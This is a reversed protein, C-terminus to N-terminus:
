RKAHLKIGGFAVTFTGGLVLAVIALTKIDEWHDSLFKYGMLIAIISVVAIGIVAVTKTNDM